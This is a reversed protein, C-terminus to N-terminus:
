LPAEKRRFVDFDANPEWGDDYFNWYECYPYGYLKQFIKEIGLRQWNWNKRDVVWKEVFDEGM